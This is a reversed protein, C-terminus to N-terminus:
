IYNSLESHLIAIYMQLTHTCMTIIRFCKKRVEHKMSGVWFFNPIVFPISLSYLFNLVIGVLDVYGQDGM